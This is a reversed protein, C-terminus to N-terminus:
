LLLRLWCRSVPDAILHFFETASGYLFFSWRVSYPSAVVAHHVHHLETNEIQGTRFCFLTSFVFYIRVNSL